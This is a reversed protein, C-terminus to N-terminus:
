TDAPVQTEALSPNQIAIVIIRQLWYLSKIASQTSFKGSATSQPRLERGADKENKRLNRTM